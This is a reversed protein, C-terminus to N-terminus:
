RGKRSIEAVSHKSVRSQDKGITPTKSTPVESVGKTNSKMNMTKRTVKM